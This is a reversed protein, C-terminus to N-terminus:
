ELVDEALTEGETNLWSELGYLVVPFIIARYM